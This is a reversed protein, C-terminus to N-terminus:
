VIGGMRNYHLVYGWGNGWTQNADLNGQQIVLVYQYDTNPQAMVTPYTKVFDATPMHAAIQAGSLNFEKANPGYTWPLGDIASLKVPLALAQAATLAVPVKPNSVAPLNAVLWEGIATYDAGFTTPPMSLKGTTHTSNDIIGDVENVLIITSIDLSIGSVSVKVTGYYLPHTPAITLEVEYIYDGEPDLWSIPKDVIDAETLYLGFTQAIHPLLDKTTKCEPAEVILKVNKFLEAISIRHYSVKQFSKMGSYRIGDVICTSKDAGHVFGSFRVNNLTIPVEFVNEALIAKILEYQVNPNYLAM